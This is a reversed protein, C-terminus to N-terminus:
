WFYQNEVVTTQRTSSDYKLLYERAIAENERLTEVEKKGIETDTSLLIVQHSASPFYREVLNSRHSSDLRGLPTDIAVPLRHGSVKALGWLFAIALLQKEGASLRHKPVPKGNFDYLSLGFTNTDIAIRHVLDSKHLLYLFCNKVEEELKNLKRLTLKERFIKLTEQVKAASTIIHENNKHKTNEVTYDSLERKSKAIITELDALRRRITEYNAKAEVVQNQAAEVAQRLKTYDEPAAATQVQRELTIIEEEKNKIIALKEKASIQSNQLHYILNDLQSLTEDDALLWPAEMQLTKAYLNDVDEVLFSQIKEVKTLAIEVQSLWSLLRQDREILLDKSIQIQRHRFEQEGQTQVQTLLNPILALPLVEAALECMLQRVQEVEGTKAKQQLELQNREAAIKGAESIFKDFAEQQKVELEELQNKINELNQESEQYDQQQQTLRKEIEELNALDKTDAFEKRKRNVLIDLDVALRDALELGFLGRIAEVVIPPPIEQEALEKVQEGDFLFLNSIGLPLLNEIYEDWINVLADPWTDSDGLIGLTDKGDKPNKTWSRVVRYKIPKDNEIHEFLLEIRTDAVPDIKNNVCQNLFDGYSLNGRTSCQARPGYLALRIADMLTTKGGGNMGGLLIIPRSNEEDIKPNLNIVQKGSYPGFNQLVLELFIM